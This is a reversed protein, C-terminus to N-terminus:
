KKVTGFVAGAFDKVKTCDWEIFGPKKVEELQEEVHQLKEQVGYMVGMRADAAKRYEETLANRQAEMKAEMERRLKEREKRHRDEM